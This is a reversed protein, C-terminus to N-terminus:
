RGVNREGGAVNVTWDCSLPSSVLETSLCLLESGSQQLHTEGRHSFFLPMEHLHASMAAVLVPHSYTIHSKLHFILFLLSAAHYFGEASLETTTRYVRARMVCGSSIFCAVTLHDPLSSVCGM